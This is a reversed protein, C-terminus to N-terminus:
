AGRAAARRAARRRAWAACLTLPLLVPVALVTDESGIWGLEADWTSFPYLLLYGVGLHRQMLDVALHLLGGAALARATAPREHEGFAYAALLSALVIGVPMHLPGFVHIAEEPIAPWRWRAVTAAAAPVRSTLDPLCAGLVFTAVRPEGRGPPRPLCTWLVAVCGHTVLDAM